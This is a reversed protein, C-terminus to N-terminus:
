RGSLRRDRATRGRPRARGARAPSRGAARARAPGAGGRRRVRRRRLADRARRRDGPEGRQAGPGRGGPRLQRLLPGARDGGVRARSLGYGRVGVNASGVELVTGQGLERILALTPEYRVLGHIPLDIPGVPSDKGAEGTARTSPAPRGAHRPLRGPGDPAPAAPRAAAALHGERAALRRDREVSRLLDLLRHGRGRCGVGPDRAPLGARDAAHDGADAAAHLRPARRGTLAGAAVKGVGGALVGPLLLFGYLIADEFKPGYLLPIGAVFLLALGLGTPIALLIGHRMSRAVTANSGEGAQGREAAADLAAVRPLIVSQLASPLIWAIAGLSGAVFYIGVTSSAVYANLIVVDIRFSVAWFIESVWTKSGFVIAARLENLRAAVRAAARAGPIALM